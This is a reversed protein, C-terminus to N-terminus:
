GKIVEEILNLVRIIDIEYFDFFIFMYFLIFLIFREVLYRICLFCEIGDGDDKGIVM